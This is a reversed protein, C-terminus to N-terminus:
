STSMTDLYTLRRSDLVGSDFEALARRLEDVPLPRGFLYGQLYRCAMDQLMAAQGTTEVGEAVVDMGLSRGLDIVGAVLAAGRPDREIEAIFERDMKLIDVPLRALYALSSYGRGFDDLALVCGMERLTALDSQLRDEADLMVSETIEVVLNGPPMGSDAVARAVDPALCGAQLHRVSVNVGMQLQWGEALLGALDATATRLVWQQLAVILGDDEALSIFEDPPVTGFLPHEWRVLAEIGVIRRDAVGVVPQYVMRLQREALAAPLDRALRARRGMASDIAKRSSRVCGKGAAKAARLALDANRIADTAEEGVRVRAVGISGSVPFVPGPGDGVSSPARFSRALMAVLREAVVTAEGRLGSVLLAFEDGGLRAIFDGDRAGARLVDAVECLLQDGAEHGAVDNVTKFGDLDILLVCTRVGDAAQVVAEDLAAMFRARNPLGTLYDSYAMRELERETSRRGAVDHRPSARGIRRIRGLLLGGVALTVVVLLVPAASWGPRLLEQAAVAGTLGALVALVAVAPWRTV